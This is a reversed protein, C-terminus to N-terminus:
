EITRGRSLVDAHIIKLYLCDKIALKIEYKYMDYRPWSNKEVIKQEEVVDYAKILRHDTLLTGKGM